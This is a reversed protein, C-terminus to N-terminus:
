GDSVRRNVALKPGFSLLPGLEQMLEAVLPHNAHRRVAKDDKWGDVIYFTCPRETDEYVNYYLCGEERRAPEVFRLVLELVRERNRAECALECVIHREAEKGKDM